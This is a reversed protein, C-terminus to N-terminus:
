KIPGCDGIDFDRFKKLPMIYNNKGYQIMELMANLDAGICPLSQNMAELFVIGFHDPLSPIVFNDRRRYLGLLQRQRFSTRYIGRGV